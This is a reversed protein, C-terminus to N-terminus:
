EVVVCGCKRQMTSPDFHATHFDGLKDECGFCIDTEGECSNTWYDIYDEENDDSEVVMKPQEIIFQVMAAKVKEFMQFTFESLDNRWSSAKILEKETYTDIDDKLKKENVQVVGNKIESQILAFLDKAFGALDDEWTGYKVRETESYTLMKTRLSFLPVGTSGM